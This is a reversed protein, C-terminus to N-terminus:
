NKLELCNSCLQIKKLNILKQNIQQLKIDKKSLFQAYRDSITTTINVSILRDEFSNSVITDILTKSHRTVRTPTSINLLLFNTYISNLFTASDTNTDYKVLDIYFEGMLRSTKDEKSVRQLLKSIYIDIFETPNM